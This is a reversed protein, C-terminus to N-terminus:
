RKAGVSSVSFRKPFYCEGDPRPNKFIRTFLAAPEVRATRALSARDPFRRGAVVIVLDLGLDDGPAAIAAAARRFRGLLGAFLKIRVLGVIDDVVDLVDDFPLPRAERGVPGSVIVAGAAEDLDPPGGFLFYGVLAM